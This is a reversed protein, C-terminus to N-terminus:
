LVMMIQKGPPVKELQYPYMVLKEREFLNPKGHIDNGKYFGYRTTDEVITRKKINLIKIVYRETKDYSYLFPLDLIRAYHNNKGKIKVIEGKEFLSM